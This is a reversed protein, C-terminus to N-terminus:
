ITWVGRAEDKFMTVGHHVMTTPGLAIPAVPVQVHPEVMRWVGLSEDRWMLVGNHFEKQTEGRLVTPAEALARLMGQIPALDVSRAAAAVSSSKQLHQGLFRASKATKAASRLM